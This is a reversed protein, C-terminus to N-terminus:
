SRQPSKHDGSPSVSVISIVIEVFVSISTAPKEKQCGTQSGADNFLGSLLAVGVMTKPLPPLAELLASAQAITLAWKSRVNTLAPLDVDRAAQTPTGFANPSKAEEASGNVDSRPTRM